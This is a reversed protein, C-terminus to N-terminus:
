WLNKSESNNIVDLASVNFSKASFSNAENVKKAFMSPSAFESEDKWNASSGREKFEIERGGFEFMKCLQVDNAIKNPKLVGFVQDPNM